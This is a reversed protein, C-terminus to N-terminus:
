SSVVAARGPDGIDIHVGSLMNRKMGLCLDPSTMTIYFHRCRIIDCRLTKLFKHSFSSCPCSDKMKILPPYFIPLGRSTLDSARHGIM